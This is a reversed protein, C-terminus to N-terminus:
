GLSRHTIFNTFADAIKLMADDDPIHSIDPFFDDGDVINVGELAQSTLLADAVPLEFSYIGNVDPTVTNIGQHTTGLISEDVNESLELMRTLTSFADQSLTILLTKERVESFELFMKTLGINHAM